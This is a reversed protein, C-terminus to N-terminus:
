TASTLAISLRTCGSPSLALEGFAIVRMVIRLHILFQCHRYQGTIYPIPSTTSSNSMKMSKKLYYHLVNVMVDNRIFQLTM